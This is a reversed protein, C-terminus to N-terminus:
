CPNFKILWGIPINESQVTKKGEVDAVIDAIGDKAEDVIPKDTDALIAELQEIIEDGMDTSVEEGNQSCEIMERVCDISKLVLSIISKSMMRDGSRIEDLLTEVVHTFDAIESFGFTGAGGKISHIVRFVANLEEKDDVNSEMSLMSAEMSDLGELSEEFFVQHFQGLDISM